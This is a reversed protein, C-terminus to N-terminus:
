LVENGGSSLDRSTSGGTPAACAFSHRLDRRLRLKPLFSKTKPPEHTSNAEESRAASQVGLLETLDNLSLEGNSAAAMQRADAMSKSLITKDKGFAGRLLVSVEKMDLSGSNDLDFAKFAEEVLEAFNPADMPTGRLVNVIRRRNRRQAGLQRYYYWVGFAAILPILFWVLVNGPTQHGAGMLCVGVTVLPYIGCMMAVIWVHNLMICADECDMKVLKHEVFGEILCMVQVGLQVLNFIDFWTSYTLKGLGHDRDLNVQLM